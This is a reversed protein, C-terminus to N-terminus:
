FAVRVDNSPVLCRLLFNVAKSIPTSDAAVATKFAIRVENLDEANLQMRRTAIATLFELTAQQPEAYKASLRRLFDVMYRSAESDGRYDLESPLSTRLLAAQIVGDNFRAFNEPDLAVHMLLPSRLRQESALLNSTRANQLLTGITALVEGHYPGAEYGKPWFAFDENLILQDALEPGSPLLIEAGMGGSRLSAARQLLEPPASVQATYILSLEQLLSESVADSSLCAKMRLIEIASENSSYQLNRDFTKLNSLSETVQMGILYLRAGRHCNRLERSLSLVANGRGVVAAVCVIAGKQDITASSVQSASVLKPAPGGLEIVIYAVHQALIQSPKDDQYIVQTTGAKLAQPLKTDVWWRFNHTKLLAQADIYLSRRNESSATAAFAGFVGQRHLESYIETYETCDRSHAKTLLVKRPPEMIPFFNEGEIRIDYKASPKLEEPKEASPMAYLAHEADQADDFTVLTVIDRSTLSKKKIWERHLNMSSSASIICLSTDPLPNKVEDIGGYSHFSEVQPLPTVNALALLERLAFATAAVGMTDVFILRLKEPMGLYSRSLRYVIAFAVFSVAASTALALEARIFYSSRRSSPKHFAYGAPANVLVIKPDFIKALGAKIWNSIGLFKGLIEKRLEASVGQEHTLSISLSDLKISLVAFPMRGNFRVLASQVPVSRLAPLLTKDQEIHLMVVASPVLPGLCVEELLDPLVTLDVTGPMKFVVAIDETSRLASKSQWRFTFFGAQSTM